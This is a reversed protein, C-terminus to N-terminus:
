LEEKVMKQVKKNIFWCLQVNKVVIKALRKNTQLDYRIYSKNGNEDDLEEEDSHVFIFLCIVMRGQKMRHLLENCYLKDILAYGGNFSKLM